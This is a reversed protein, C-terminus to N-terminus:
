AYLEYYIPIDWLEYCEGPSMMVSSIDYFHGKNRGMYGM